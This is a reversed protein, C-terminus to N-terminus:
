AAGQLRQRWHQAAAQMATLATEGWVERRIYRFKQRAGPQTVHRDWGLAVHTVCDAFDEYPSSASYERCFWSGCRFRWSSAAQAWGPRNESYRATGSPTEDSEAFGSLALWAPAADLGTGYGIAHAAEHLWTALARTVYPERHAPEHGDVDYLPLQWPTDGQFLRTNLVIEGTDPTFSGQQAGLPELRVATIPAEEKLPPLLKWGETLVLLARDELSLM